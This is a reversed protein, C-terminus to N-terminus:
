QGMQRRELNKNHMILHSVQQKSLNLEDLNSILKDVHLMQRM